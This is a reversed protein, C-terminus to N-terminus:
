QDGGGPQRDQDSSEPRVADHCGIERINIESRYDKKRNGEKDQSFPLRIGDIDHDAGAHDAADNVAEAEYLLVSNGQFYRM